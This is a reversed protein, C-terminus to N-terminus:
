LLSHTTPKTFHTLAQPTQYRTPHTPLLCDTTDIMALAADPSVSQRLITSGYKRRFLIQAADCADSATKWDWPGDADSGHFATEMAARLARADIARGRALDPLILKAAARIAEGTAAFGPAVPVSAALRAVSTSPTM